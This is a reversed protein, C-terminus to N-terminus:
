VWVHRYMDLHTHTFFTVCTFLFCVFFDCLHFFECLVCLLCVLAMYVSVCTINYLIPHCVRLVTLTCQHSHHGPTTASADAPSYVYPCIGADFNRLFVDIKTQLAVAIWAIWAAGPLWRWSAAHVPIIWPIPRYTDLRHICGLMSVDIAREFFFDWFYLLHHFYTYLNAIFVMSIEQRLSGKLTFFKTILGYRSRWLM